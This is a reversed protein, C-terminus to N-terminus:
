IEKYDISVFVKRNSDAGPFTSVFYTLTANCDKNIEVVTNLIITKDDFVVVTNTQTYQVDMVYGTYSHNGGIFTIGLGFVVLGFVTAVLLSIGITFGDPM